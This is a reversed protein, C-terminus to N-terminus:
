THKFVIVVRIVNRIYDAPFGQSISALTLWRHGQDVILSPQSLYETLCYCLPISVDTSSKIRYSKMKLTKPSCPSLSRNIPQSVRETSKTILLANPSNQQKNATRVPLPLPLSFPYSNKRGTQRQQLFKLFSQSTQPQRNFHTCQSKHIVKKLQTHEGQGVRDMDNLIFQM